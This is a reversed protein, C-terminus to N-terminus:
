NVLSALRNFSEAARVTHEAKVHGYLKATFSLDAHGLRRSVQLLDVPAHPDILVLTASTHRLVYLRFTPTFSREPTPGSRPKKREPGWTGLDGIGADAVRLLRAWARRVNNGLPTGLETTFVFGHDQWQPGIALRDTVQQKKWRRLEAVSLESIPIDRRSFETKPKTLKWGQEAKNVGVRALTHRVRVIKADLDVNCWKLAFAEGPRVAADLLLHWLASWRDHKAATLVRIAQERTLSKVPGLSNEEDDDTIEARVNSKPLTALQAPNNMLEGKKVAFKLAQKLLGHLYSVGRPKMGQETLAEYLKDFDAVTLKRLAKGGLAPVNPQTRFIWKDVVREVNYANRVQSAYVPLWRDRLYEAFTIRLSTPQYGGRNRQAAQQTAWETADSRRHFTKSEFLSKGNVPHRGLSIRVEFHGSPKLKRFTAM